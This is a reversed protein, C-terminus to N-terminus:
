QKKCDQRRSREVVHHAMDLVSQNSAKSIGIVTIMCALMWVFNIVMFPGISHYLLGDIRHLSIVETSWCAISLLTGVIALVAGASASFRQRAAGMGVLQLAGVMALMGVQPWHRQSYWQNAIAWSKLLTYLKWRWDFAIDFLLIVQLVGLIFALRSMRKDCKAKVCAAGCSVSAVFYAAMGSARVPTLWEAATRM